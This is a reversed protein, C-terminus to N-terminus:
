ETRSPESLEYHEPRNTRKVCKSCKLSSLMRAVERRCVSDLACYLFPNVASNAFALLKTFDFWVSKVSVKFPHLMYLIETPFWCLTMLIATVSALRLLKQKTLERKANRAHTPSERTLKWIHIFAAWTVLCPLIATVITYVPRWVQQARSEFTKKGSCEYGHEATYHYSYTFPKYLPLVISLCCITTLYIVLKRESFAQRYLLPKAVAYWRDVAMCAASLLSAKGFVFLFYDTDILRCFLEGAFGTPHPYNSDEVLHDPSIPIM